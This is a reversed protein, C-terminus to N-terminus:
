GDSVVDSVSGDIVTMMVSGLIQPTWWQNLAARRNGRKLGLDETKALFVAMQGRTVLNDPSYTTASTGVTVGQFYIQAIFCFFGNGMVDNFPLTITQGSCTGSDARTRSLAGTLVLILALLIAEFLVFRRQLSLRPRNFEIQFHIKM